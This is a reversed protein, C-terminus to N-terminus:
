DAAWAVMDGLMKEAKSLQDLEIFEDAKHAIEISGPGCVITPVGMEQFFGAETGFSVADEGDCGTRDRILSCADRNLYPDLTPVLALRRCAIRSGAWAAQMKPEATFSIHDLITAEVRAADVEPINRFEWVLRAEDPIINLAQGGSLIGVNFTCYPPELGDAGTTHRRLDAFYEDLYTVFAAAHVNASVGLHSQSSHATRGHFVTEYVRAGKHTSVVRMLTPEGVIALVPRPLRDRLVAVLDATGACGLEEDYSLALHVPRSLDASEAAEMMTICCALFGKMDTTGRGFARDGDRRLRFPDSKWDQGETPVVDSHASLMLGGPVDPGISAVLSAKKGTKDLTKILRAGCAALKAAVWDILHINPRSSVTNFAILRDLHDLTTSIM